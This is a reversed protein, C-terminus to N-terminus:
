KRELSEFVGPTARFRTAKPRGGGHECSDFDINVLKFYWELFDPRHAFTKKIDAALIAWVWSRVPNELTVFANCLFAAFLVYLTMHYINNAQQVRVAETPTLGLLGFLNDPGRLPRPQPAGEAILAPSLPKERARSSTGCPMGLHIWAPQIFEIMTTVLPINDLSALDISLTSAKVRFRNGGHDIPFVQFGRRQAEASLSASSSCFEM